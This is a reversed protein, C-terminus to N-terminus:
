QSDSQWPRQWPWPAGFSLQAQIQVHETRSRSGVAAAILRTPEIGDELPAPDGAALASAYRMQQWAPGQPPDGALVAADHARVRRRWKDYNMYRAENINLDLPDTDHRWQGEPTLARGEVDEVRSGERPRAGRRLAHRRAAVSSNALEPREPEREPAPQM